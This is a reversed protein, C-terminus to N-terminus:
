KVALEPKAEIALQWYKHADDTKGLTKLSHSLNLLAEGIGPKQEIARQYFRAEAEADNSEQKLLGLNFLLEPSKEGQASLKAEYGLVQEVEGRDIALAALGQLAEVSDPDLTISPRVGLRSIRLRRTEM